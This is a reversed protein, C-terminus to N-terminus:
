RKTELAKLADLVKPWAKDFYDRATEWEARHEPNEAAQEAFGQHDLRIRTRAPALEDFRVVVWTRKARAHALKPPANWTYSLMQEPVFSLVTCGESGREGAPADSGFLIEFKGGPKLEIRTEVGFFRKWGASTSLLTWVDSRPMEVVREHAIPALTEAPHARSEPAPAVPDFRRKLYSLVWANGSKFFQRMKRGDDGDPYGLGAIRLHTRGDGLDTLTIVTWTGKWTSEAFPFGKPPKHVRISLMREPEFSLIENEITGDDGLVGNADYHSRILGGVRFDMECHAVGLNKYGEATAFVKWAEAPPAKVIAETVLPETASPPVSITDLAAAALVIWVLMM